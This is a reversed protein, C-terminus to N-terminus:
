VGIRSLERNQALRTSLVFLWIAEVGGRRDAPRNALASKVGAEGLGLEGVLDPDGDRVEGAQFVAVFGLLEAADDGNEFLEADTHRQL